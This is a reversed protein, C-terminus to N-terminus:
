QNAIELLVDAHCPEGLKCWCALSKGRLEAKIKIRMLVKDVHARFMKVADASTQPSYDTHPDFQVVFPNGWKGPRAVVVTNEPKRWGKARRLQIRKPTENM